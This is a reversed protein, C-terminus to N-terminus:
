CWSECQMDPWARGVRNALGRLGLGRWRVQLATRESAGPADVHIEGEELIDLVANLDGQNAAKHLATDQPM